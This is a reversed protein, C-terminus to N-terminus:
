PSDKPMADLKEFRLLVEDGVELKMKSAIYSNVAIENQGLSTYGTQTPSLYDFRNDVGYIQINNLRRTGDVSIIGKTHLLSSYQIDIKKSLDLGLDQRFIRDGSSLAFQVNGLRSTVIKKLSYKVSDGIILAGVLIASSLMVGLIITFHKRRYFTLNRYILKLFNM